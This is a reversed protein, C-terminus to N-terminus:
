GYWKIFLYISFLLLILMQDTPQTLTEVATPAGNSRQQLLYLVLKRIQFQQEKDRVQCDSWGGRM